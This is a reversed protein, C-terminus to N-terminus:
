ENDDALVVVVQRMYVGNIAPSVVALGAYAPDVLQPRSRDWAVFVPQVRETLEIM